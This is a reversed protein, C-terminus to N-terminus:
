GDTVVRRLMAVIEARPTESDCRVRSVVVSDRVTAVDILLDPGRLDVALSLRGVTRAPDSGIPGSAGGMEAAVEATIADLWADIADALTPASDM